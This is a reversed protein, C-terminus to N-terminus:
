EVYVACTLTPFPLCHALFSEYQLAPDDLQYIVENSLRSHEVAHLSCQAEQLQSLM